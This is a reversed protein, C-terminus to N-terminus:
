FSIVMLVNLNSKNTNNGIKQTSVNCIYLVLFNSFKFWNNKIGEWSMVEAGARVVLCAIEPQDNNRNRNDILPLCELDM